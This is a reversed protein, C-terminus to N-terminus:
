PNSLEVYGPPLRAAGGTQVWALWNHLAGGPEAATLALVQVGLPYGDQMPAIGDITLTRVAGANPLALYGIANPTQAIYEAMTTDSPRVIASPTPPVDGLVLADFAGRVASGDERSVVEVPMAPGGLATWDASNGSFIERLQTLSLDAVPNGPHVIVALATYALPTAVATSSEPRHLTIAVGLRRAALEDLLVRNPLAPRLAFEAGVDPMNETWLPGLEAVDLATSVRIVPPPAAPASAPAPTATCAALTLLLALRHLFKRSPKM